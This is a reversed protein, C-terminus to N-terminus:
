PMRSTAASEGAADHEVRAQDRAHEFFVRAGSPTQQACADGLTLWDDIAM